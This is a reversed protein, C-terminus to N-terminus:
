DVHFMEFFFWALKGHTHFQACGLLLMGQRLSTGKPQYGVLFPAELPVSVSLGLM